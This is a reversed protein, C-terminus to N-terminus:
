GISQGIWTAVFAGVIGLSGECHKFFRQVWFPGATETLQGAPIGSHVFAIRRGHALASFRQRSIRQASTHDPAATPACSLQYHSPSGGGSRLRVVSCLYSLQLKHAQLRNIRYPVVGRPGSQSVVSLILPKGARECFLALHRKTKPSAKSNSHFVIDAYSLIAGLATQDQEEDISRHMFTAARSQWYM